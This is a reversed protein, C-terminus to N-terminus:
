IGGGHCLCSMNRCRKGEPELSACGCHACPRRSPKAKRDGWKPWSQKPPSATLPPVPPIPARPAEKHPNVGTVLVPEPLAAAARQIAKNAQEAAPGPSSVTLPKDFPAPCVHEQNLVAPGGCAVCTLQGPPLPAGENQQPEMQELGGGLLRNRAWTSVKLGEGQARKAVVEYEEPKLRVM